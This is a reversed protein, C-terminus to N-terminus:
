GMGPKPSFPLLCTRAGRRSTAGRGATRRQHRGLPYQWLMPHVLRPLPRAQLPRCGSVFLKASSGHCCWRSLSGGRASRVCCSFVLLTATRVLWHWRRACGVKMAVLRAAAFRVSVALKRVNAIGWAESAAAESAIEFAKAGTVALRIQAPFIGKWAKACLKPWVAAPPGAPAKALRLVREHGRYRFVISLVEPKAVPMAHRGRGGRLPLHPRQEREAALKASGDTLAPHKQGDATFHERPQMGAKAPAALFEAEPRQAFSLLKTHGALGTMPHVAICCFPALHNRTVFVPCGPTHACGWAALMPGRLSAVRQNRHRAM